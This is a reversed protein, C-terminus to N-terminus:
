NVMDILAGAFQLHGDDDTYLLSDNSPSLEFLDCHRNIKKVADHMKDFVPKMETFLQYVKAQNETEIISTCHKKIMDLMDKSLEARSGVITIKDLAIPLNQLLHAGSTLVTRMFLDDIKVSYANMDERAQRILNERITPSTIALAEISKRVNENYAARINTIRNSLIDRYVSDSFTGLGYKEYDAAIDNVLVILPKYANVTRDYGTEDFHLEKGILSKTEM